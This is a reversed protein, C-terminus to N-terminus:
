CFEASCCPRGKTSHQDTVKEGDFAAANVSEAAVDASDTKAPMTAVLGGTAVLSYFVAAFKM